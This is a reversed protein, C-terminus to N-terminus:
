GREKRASLKRWLWGRERTRGTRIYYLTNPEQLNWYLRSLGRRGSCVLLRDGVRLETQEDPLLVHDNHRLIMLVICRLQNKRRWPDRLLDGVSLAGGTTLLEHVAAAHEENIAIEEFHPTHQGVLASIRSILECAWENEQYSALSIFEYLMPTGLLVRIKDAIIASPHMVIDAKVADIIASNDSHNQRVVVFLDPNIDRATVVISLNNADNDTGAILGSANEVGAELLTEAETGRGEVVGEKPTGTVGPKAEIVTVEIDEQVLRKHLARGFRGFGCIIWHNNRPPYIPEPLETEEQPSFLWSQLLYLCPMEFATAM